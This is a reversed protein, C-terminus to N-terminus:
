GALEKAGRIMMDAQRRQDSPLASIQDAYEEAVEDVDRSVLEGALTELLDRGSSAAELEAERKAYEERLADITGHPLWAEAGSIWDYLNPMRAASTTRVMDVLADWKIIRRVMGASLKTIKKGMNGDDDEGVALINLLSSATYRKAYSVSSGIAQVANKSGSGDAPVALTTEESHGGVHSLIATVSVNKGDSATKFALSFGCETLVPMIAQHIDDWRAYLTDNYAKGRKEIVPMKPQMSAMAIDYEAKAQRKIVVEQMQLLREMKDVDVSPDRAAREIISLMSVPESTAIASKAREAIETSM